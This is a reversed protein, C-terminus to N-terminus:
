EDMRYLDSKGLSVAETETKQTGGCHPCSAHDDNLPLEQGCYECRRVILRPLLGPFLLFVTGRGAEERCTGRARMRILAARGAEFREGLAARIEEEALEGNRARALALIEQELQEPLWRDIKRFLRVGLGILLGGLGLLLLAVLYRAPKGDAGLVFLLGLTVLGIGLLTGLVCLLRRMPNM